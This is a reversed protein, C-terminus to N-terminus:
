KGYITADFTPTEVPKHHEVKVDMTSGDALLYPWAWDFVTNRDGGRRVDIQVSDVEITWKARVEGSCSVQTIRKDAGTATYTLVTTPTAPAVPGQSDTALVGSFDKGGRITAM